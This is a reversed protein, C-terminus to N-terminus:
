FDIYIFQSAGSKFLLVAAILLAWFVGLAVDFLFAGIKEKNM